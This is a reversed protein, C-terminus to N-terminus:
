PALLPVAGECGFPKGRELRGAQLVRGDRPDVRYYLPPAKSPRSEVVNGPPASCVSQVVAGGDWVTKWAGQRAPLFWIDTAPVLSPDMLAVAGGLEWYAGFVEGNPDGEIQVVVSVDKQSERLYSRDIVSIISDLVMKSQEKNSTWERARAVFGAFLLMLVIGLLVLALYASRRARVPRGLQDASAAVMIGILVAFYFGPAAMTRSMVGTGTLGYGAAGHMVATFAVGLGLAAVVVVLRAVSMARVMLLTAGIAVLTLFLAQIPVPSLAASVFEDFRMINNLILSFNVSIAKSHGPVILPVLVRQYVVALSLPMVYWLAARALAPIQSLRFGKAIILLPVFTFWYAEYSLFGCLALVSGMCKIRIGENEEILLYGVGFLIFGWLTLVGTPWAFVALMWPSFFLVLGGLAGGILAARRSYGLAMALYAILRHSLAASALVTASSIVQWYAPSGNGVLNFAWAILSYVPRAYWNVKLYEALTASLYITNSLYIWDDSYFGLRSVRWWSSLIFTLALLVVVGAKARHGSAPWVEGATNNM